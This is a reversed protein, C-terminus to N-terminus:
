NQVGNVLSNMSTAANKSLAFGVRMEEQDFVTYYNSFFNLGLIWTKMTHHTMIELLCLDADKDRMVYSEKPLYYKQDGIEFVFDPFKEYHYDTCYCVPISNDNCVIFSETRLYDIFTTRDDKPM